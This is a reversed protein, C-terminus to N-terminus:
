VGRKGGFLTIHLRDSFAFGFKAALARVQERTKSLQEENLGLPMLFVQSMGFEGIYGFVEQTDVESSVVFKFWVKKSQVLSIISTPRIRLQSSDGSNSLKPSCNIQDVLDLFEPRVVLTGNTEVEIWWGESKLTELLPLLCSQQLLPEGGSIVLAKVEDGGLRKLESIVSEPEMLHIEKNKDFKHPHKFPTGIWNWTYPTDCWICHLNCTALRLFMVRKGVSKGEGQITPGFCENVKLM